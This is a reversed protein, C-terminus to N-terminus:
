KVIGNEQASIGCCVCTWGPTSTPIEMFRREIDARIPQRDNSDFYENIAEVITLKELNSLNLFGRFVLAGNDSLKM